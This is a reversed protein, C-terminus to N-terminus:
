HERRQKNRRGGVLPPFDEMSHIWPCNPIRECRGDFKCDLRDPQILNRRPINVQSRAEQRSGQSRSEQRGGQGRTDQRGGQSRAEQRGGQGRVEQRGGQSRAEQRGGQGRVNQRGGQSRAEQRGGQGRAEQRGRQGTAEQRGGQIRPEHSEKKNLWPKQVGIRPHFYSCIGKRLWDCDSGNSCVPVKARKPAAPNNQHGVHSFLCREGKECHGRRWHHCVEKSRVVDMPHEKDTHKKLTNQGRCMEGCEACEIYKNVGHCNQKHRKIGQSTFSENCKNCISNAVGIEICENLHKALEQENSCTKDCYNCHKEEHKATIHRELDKSEKFLKDCANCQHYQPEIVVVEENTPAAEKLVEIISEKTSLKIKLDSNEKNIIANDERTEELEKMLAEKDKKLKDTVTKADKKIRDTERRALELEKTQKETVEKMMNSNHNSVDLENKLRIVTNTTEKQLCSKKSMINRLRELKEKIKDSEPDEFLLCIEQYAEEEETIAAIM